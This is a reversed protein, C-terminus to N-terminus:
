PIGCEATRNAYKQRSARTKDDSMPEARDAMRILHQHEIMASDDLSASIRIEIRRAANVSLEVPSEDLLLFKRIRSYDRLRKAFQSNGM